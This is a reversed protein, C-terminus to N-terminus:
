YCVYGVTELLWKGLSSPNGGQHRQYEVHQSPLRQIGHKNHFCRLFKSCQRCCASYESEAKRFATWRSVSRSSQQQHHSFSTTLRRVILSTVLFKLKSPQLGHRARLALSYRPDPPLAGLPTWPCLGQDPTLGGQLQSSKRPHVDRPKPLNAGKQRKPYFTSFHNELM